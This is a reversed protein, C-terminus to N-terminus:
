MLLKYGYARIPDDSTRDLYIIDSRGKKNRYFLSRYADSYKCVNTIKSKLIVKGVRGSRTVFAIYQAEWKDRLDNEFLINPMLWWDSDAEIEKLTISVDHNSEPELADPDFVVPQDTLGGAEAGGRSKNFRRARRKAFM